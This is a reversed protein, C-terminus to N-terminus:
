SGPGGGLVSLCGLEIGFAVLWIQAGSPRTLQVAKDKEGVDWYSVGMSVFLDGFSNSDVLNELGEQDFMPQAKNFWAVAEEHDEQHHDEHPMPLADDAQEREEMQRAVLVGRRQGAQAHARAIEHNDGM